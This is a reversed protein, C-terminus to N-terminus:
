EQGSGFSDRQSRVWQQWNAVAEDQARRVAAPNGESLSPGFDAGRSLRTLAQRASQRVAPVPDKLRIILDDAVPVRRQSVSQIALWRIMPNPDNMKKRLLNRDDKELEKAVMMQFRIADIQQRFFQKLELQKALPAQLVDAHALLNVLPIQPKDGLPDIPGRPMRPVAVLLDIMPQDPRLTKRLSIKQGQKFVNMRCSALMSM